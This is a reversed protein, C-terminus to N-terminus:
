RYRLMTQGSIRHKGNINWGHDQYDRYELASDRDAPDTTGGQNFLYGFIVPRDHRLAEGFLLQLNRLTPGPSSADSQWRQLLSQVKKLDDMIIAAKISEYFQKASLPPTHQDGHHKANVAESTMSIHFYSKEDKEIM